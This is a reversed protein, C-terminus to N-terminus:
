RCRGFSIGFNVGDGRAHMASHTWTYHVRNRIFSETERRVQTIETITTRGQSDMGVETQVGVVRDREREGSVMKAEEVRRGLMSDWVSMLRPAEEHSLSMQISQVFGEDSFAVSIRSPKLGAYSAIGDCWLNRDGPGWTCTHGATLSRVEGINMSGHLHSLDLTGPLGAGRRQASAQQVICEPRSADWFNRLQIVEAKTVKGTVPRALTAQWQRVAFDFDMCVTNGLGPYAFRGGFNAVAWLGFIRKGRPEKAWERAADEDSFSADTSSCGKRYEAIEITRGRPAAHIADYDIKQPDLDRLIAVRSELNDSPWFLNPFPKISPTRTADRGPSETSRAQSVAVPQAAALTLGTALLVSLHFSKLRPM